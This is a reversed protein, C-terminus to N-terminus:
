STDGTVDVLFKVNRRGLPGLMVSDPKDIGLLKSVTKQNKSLFTASMAIILPPKQMLDRLVRLNKVAEHFEPRFSRGNIDM